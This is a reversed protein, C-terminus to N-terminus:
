SQAGPAERMLRDFLEPKNMDLWDTLDSVMRPELSYSSTCDCGADYVLAGDKFIYGLPYNCMSCKRTHIKSTGYAKALKLVREDM